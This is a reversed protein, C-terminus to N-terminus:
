ASMLTKVPCNM